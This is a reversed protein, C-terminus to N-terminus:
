ITEASKTSRGTRAYTMFLLRGMIRTICSRIFDADKPDSLTYQVVTIGSFFADVM